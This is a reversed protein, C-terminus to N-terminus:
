TINIVDDVFKPAKYFRDFAVTTAVNLGRKALREKRVEEDVVLEIVNFRALVHDPIYDMWQGLSPAEYDTEKAFLVSWNIAGAMERKLAQYAVENGSLIANKFSEKYYAQEDKNFFQWIAKDCDVPSLCRKKIFTSKGVGIKGCFISYYPLAPSCWRKYSLLCTKPINDLVLQSKNRAHLQRLASSSIHRLEGTCPIFVTQCGLKTNWDAITIEASLDVSDRLGRILVDPNEDVVLGKTTIVNPTIPNLTWKIFKININKEPNEAVCLYVNDAGFIKCAQEYVYYHGAHFLNFTGAYIAKM